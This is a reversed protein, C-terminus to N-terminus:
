MIGHDPNITFSAIHNLRVLVNAIEFLPSRDHKNTPRLSRQARKVEAPGM